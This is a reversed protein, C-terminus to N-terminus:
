FYKILKAIKKEAWKVSERVSSYNCGEMEAIQEYTLEHEHYMIFRRRQKKPLQQIAMKLRENRLEEIITDELSKPQHVARRGLTDEWVESHERYREDWHRLSREVVTFHLFENYVAYSVESECENEEGDVFSVYYRTAGDVTETRLTYHNSERFM